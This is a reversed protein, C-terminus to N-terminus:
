WHHSYWAPYGYDWLAGHHYYGPDYFGDYGDYYVQRKSRLHSSVGALSDSSPIVQAMKSLRGNLLNNMRSNVRSIRGEVRVLPLPLAMFNRAEEEEGRTLPKTNVPRDVQASLNNGDSAVKSLMEQGEALMVLSLVTAIFYVLHM